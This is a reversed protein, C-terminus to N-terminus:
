ISSIAATPYERTRWATLISSPAPISSSATSHSGAAMGGSRLYNGGTASASSQENATIISFQATSHHLVAAKDRRKSNKIISVIFLSFHLAHNTIPSAEMIYDHSYPGTHLQYAERPKVLKVSKWLTRVKLLQGKVGSLSLFPSSTLGAPNSRARM